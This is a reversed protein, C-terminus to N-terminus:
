VAIYFDKETVTTGSLDLLDVTGLAQLQAQLTTGGTPTYLPGEIMFTQGTNSNGLPGTMLIVHMKNIVELIAQQAGEPGPSGNVAVQTDLTFITVDKGINEFSPDAGGTSAPNVRAITAM